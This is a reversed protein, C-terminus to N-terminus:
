CGRSTGSRSHSRGMAVTMADGRLWTEAQEILASAAEPDLAEFMGWQGLGAQMHEQVLKDVQASIRGVIAGGRRAVWLAARGHGFWPNQLPDILAHVEAKLPPVWAPDNRYVEWAFDVFARRQRKTTVPEITVSDSMVAPSAPPTASTVKPPSAWRLAMMTGNDRAM